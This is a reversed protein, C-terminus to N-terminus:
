DKKKKRFFELFGVRQQLRKAICFGRPVVIATTESFENLQVEVILVLDRAAKDRMVQELLRAYAHLALLLAVIVYKVSQAGARGFVETLTQEDCRGIVKM